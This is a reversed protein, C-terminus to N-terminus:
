GLFFNSIHTKKEKWCGCFHLPNLSISCVMFICILKLFNNYSSSLCANHFYLLQFRTCFKAGPFIQDTGFQRQKASGWHRSSPVNPPLYRPQFHVPNACKGEFRAGLHLFNAENVAAPQQLWSKGKWEMKPFPHREAFFFSPQCNSKEKLLVTFGM